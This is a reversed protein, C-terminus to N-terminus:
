PDPRLASSSNPGLAHLLTAAFLAEASHWLLPAVKQVTTDILPKGELAGNYKQQYVDLVEPSPVYTPYMEMLEATSPGQHQEEILPAPEPAAKRVPIPPHVRGHASSSAHTPIVLNACKASQRFSLCRNHVIILAAIACAPPCALFLLCLVLVLLVIISSCTCVGRKLATHM